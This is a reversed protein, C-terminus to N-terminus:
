AWIGIVAMIIMGALIGCFGLFPLLAGQRHLEENNVFWEVWFICMGMFLLLGGCISNLIGITINAGESQGDYAQSM